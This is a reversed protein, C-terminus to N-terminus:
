GTRSLRLARHGSPTQIPLVLRSLGDDASPPSASPAKKRIPLITAPTAASATAPTSVAHEDPVGAADAFLLTARAAPEADLEVAAVLLVVVATAGVVVVVVVTGVVV